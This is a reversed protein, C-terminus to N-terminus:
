KLPFGAPIIFSKKAILKINKILKLNFLIKPVFM